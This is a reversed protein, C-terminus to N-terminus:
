IRRNCMPSGDVTGLPALFSRLILDRLVLDLDGFERRVFRHIDLTVGYLVEIEAM